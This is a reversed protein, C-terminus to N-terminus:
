DVSKQKLEGLLFRAVGLEVFHGLKEPGDNM